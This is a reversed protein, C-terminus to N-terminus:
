GAYQSVGMFANTYQRDLEKRFAKSVEVGISQPNAGSKVHVSINVNQKFSRSQNISTATPALNRSIHSSSGGDDFAGVMKLTPVFGDRMFNPVVSLLANKVLEAISFFKDMLWHGFKLFEMKMGSCAESFGIGISQWAQNFFDGIGAWFDGFFLKFNAYEKEISQWCERLGKVASNWAISCFKSIALGVDRFVSDGGHLAVWLDELVMIVGFITGSILIVKAGVLGIAAMFPMIAARFKLVVGGIAAALSMFTVRTTGTAHEANQTSLVLNSFIESIKALPVFLKQALSRGALHSSSSLRNFARSLREGNDVSEGGMVYGLSKAEIRMQDLGASGDKLIKLMEYGQDGFLADAVWLRKNQHLDKLGDAVKDLLELPEILNNSAMEMNLGLALFGEAADGSGSQADVSRIMLEKLSDELTDIAVSSKEAAYSLEQFAETSIGLLKASKNIQATASATTSIFERLKEVAFLGAIGKMVDEAKGALTDLHSSARKFEGNNTRLTFLAELKRIIM